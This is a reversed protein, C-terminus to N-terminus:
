NSPLTSSEHVNKWITPQINIEKKDREAETKTIARKNTNKQIYDRCICVEKFKFIRHIKTVQVGMKVYFKLMKHHVM